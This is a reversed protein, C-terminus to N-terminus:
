DETTWQKFAEVDPEVLIAIEIQLEPQTQFFVNYRKQFEKEGQNKNGM